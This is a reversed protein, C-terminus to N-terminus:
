QNNNQRQKQELLEIRERLKNIRANVYEEYRNFRKEFGVIKQEIIALKASMRWTNITATSLLAIVLGAIIKTMLSTGNGGPQRHGNGNAQTHTATNYFDKSM